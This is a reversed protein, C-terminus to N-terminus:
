PHDIREPPNSCREIVEDIHFPRFEGTLRYANDIGVDISNRHPMWEDLQDEALSHCHGYCHIGGRQMKRFSVMPYHCIHFWRGNFKQFLMQRFKSVHNELPRADHNGWAMMLERVKMRQRFHGVKSAKWCFDGACVLTDGPKVMENITDIFADEMTRIDGFVEQRAPMHKLINAHAFHLDSTFFVESM